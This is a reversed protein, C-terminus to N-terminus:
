AVKDHMYQKTADVAYTFDEISNQSGNDYSFTRVPQEKQTELEKEYREKLADMCRVQQRLLAAVLFFLPTTFIQNLNISAQVMYVFFSLGFAILYINNRYMSQFAYRLSYFLFVCYSFLGTIGVTVLYQIYESHANDYNNSIDNLFSGVAYYLTGPGFGILKQAITFKEFAILSRNWIYRRSTGWAMDFRLYNTFDGLEYTPDVVTFYYVIGIFALVIALFLGILIERLPLKKLWKRIRGKGISLLLLFVICILLLLWSFLGTSLLRSSTDLEHAGDPFLSLVSVVFKSGALCSTLLIGWRYLRQYHKCAIVLSIFFFMGCGLFGSDSSALVMCIFALISNLLYFIRDGKSSASIYLFGTIPFSICILSSLFNINGISSLFIPIQKPDLLTYFGFPDIGIFNLIALLSVLSVAISFCLIVPKVKEIVRSILFYVFLILLYFEVGMYRAVNGYWIVYRFESNLLMSLVHIGVFVLLAYDCLNMSRLFGKVSSLLWSTEKCIIHYIIEFLLIMVYCVLLTITFIKFYRYRTETINFYYDDFCFLFVSFMCFLYLYAPLQRWTRKLFDM